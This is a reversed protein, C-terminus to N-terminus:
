NRVLGLLILGDYILLIAFVALLGGLLRMTFRYVKGQLFRSSKGVLMALIIKSGVLFIYFGFIFAMPAYINDNIAKTVMPAGVSFWFLYPHPSLLNTLVGKTLSQPKIDNNDHSQQNLRINHYSLYFVFLGGLLSIIGLVVSFDNLKSLVFLAILIIPLDTIVPALAVKIGAKIGHQLTESIILTLLPGPALGASLGLIVGIILYNDM